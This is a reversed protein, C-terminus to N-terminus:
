LISPASEMPRNADVENDHRIIFHFYGAPSYTSLINFFKDFEHPKSRIFDPSIKLNLPTSSFPNALDNVDTPFAFGPLYKVFGGAVRDTRQKYESYRLKYGFYGGGSVPCIELQEVPQDGINQMFPNFMEFRDRHLLTRDLGDVLPRVVDFYTVGLVVGFETFDSDFIFNSGNKRLKSTTTQAATLQAPGTNSTEEAGINFAIHSLFIVEDTDKKPAVGFIGASYERIRRGVRNVQNLFRQMQIKKTVDVVNVLNSNVQVNVDGVALPLTRAGVFYDRYRLSRQYGFINYYFALHEYFVDVENSFQAYGGSGPITGTSWTYSDIANLGNLVDQVLAASTIDYQMEVGNLMYYAKRLGTLNNYYINRFLSWMNEHWLKATYVYDIADDTYFSACLLQYGILRNINVQEGTSGSAVTDAYRSWWVFSAGSTTQRSYGSAVDSFYVTTDAPNILVLDSVASPFYGQAILELIARLCYYQNVNELNNHDVDCRVLLTQRDITPAANVATINPIGLTIYFSKVHAKIFNMLIDFTQDFDMRDGNDHRLGTFGFAFNYGLSQALSGYSFIPALLSYALLNSELLQAMYADSDTFGTTGSNGTYGAVTRWWRHMMSELADGFYTSGSTTTNFFLLTNVKEPDIDQGTLPNTVLLDANHPLLARIPVFFTDKMARMPTMLPAKLNQTDIDTGSRYQVKKDDPVVDFAFHPEILGFTHTKYLSMNPQFKSYGKIPKLNPDNAPNNPQIKAGPM